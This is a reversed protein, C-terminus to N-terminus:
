NTVEIRACPVPGDAPGFRDNRDPGDRYQPDGFTNRDDRYDRRGPYRSDRRDRYGADRFQPDGFGGFAQVTTEGPQVLLREEQPQGAGFEGRRAFARTDISVFIPQGTRNTVAYVVCVGRRQAADPDPIITIRLASGNAAAISIPANGGSPGVPSGPSYGRYSENYGPYASNTGYDSGVPTVVQAPVAPAVVVPTGGTNWDDFYRPIRDTMGTMYAGAAAGIGLLFLVTSRLLPVPNEM